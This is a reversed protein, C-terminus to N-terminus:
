LVPLPHLAGLAHVPLLREGTGGRLRAAVEASRQREIRRGGGGGSRDGPSDLMPCGRHRPASASAAVAM